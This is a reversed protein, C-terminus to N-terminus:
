GSQRFNGYRDEVQEIFYVNTLFDFSLGQGILMVINPFANVHSTIGNICAQFRPEAAPDAYEATILPIGAQFDSRDTFM